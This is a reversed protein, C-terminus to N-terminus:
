NPELPESPVPCRLIISSDNIEPLGRFGPLNLFDPLYRLYQLDLLDLHYLILTFDVQEYIELTAEFGMFEKITGKLKHLNM